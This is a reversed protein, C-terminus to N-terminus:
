LEVDTTYFTGTCAANTSNLNATITAGVGPITTLYNVAKTCHGNPATVYLTTVTFKKAKFALGTGVAALVVLATLMVKAKKMVHSSKLILFSFKL